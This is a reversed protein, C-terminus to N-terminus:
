SGAGREAAEAALNTMWVFRNQGRQLSNKLLMTGELDGDLEPARLAPHLDPLPPVNLAPDHWFAPM